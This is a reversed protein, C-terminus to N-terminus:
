ITQCHESVNDTQKIMEPKMLILKAVDLHGNYAAVHLPTRGNQLFVCCMIMMYNVIHIIYM